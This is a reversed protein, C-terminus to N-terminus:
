LALRVAPDGLVVYSRADNNATWMGSLSLLDPQMGYRVNEIEVNLDSSLEAYRQNFYEMAAGIPYGELLRGLASTFVSVQRPAQPWAFSYGWARDVHGVVALAGRRPHALLRQPLGAVFGEPAIQRRSSAQHSFEDFRPTGAGYCAFFFAIVGSLDADDAVDDASFYFDNPIAARWRRPGPWDQCLLAGQRLRQNADGDEFGVGHCACFLVPATADGGMRRTLNAKTAEDALVQEFVWSPEGPPLEKSGAAWRKELADVLPRALHRCSNQTARDDPHSTALLAMQRPRPRPRPRTEAEVVSRAYRAYDELRDFCIRGVAYQVDLQYQFQFPIDSPGGVLLLYYPLQEPDVPGPGVHHRALFKPKSEGPRYCLEQYFQENIQAAEARRHELLPPSRTACRTR